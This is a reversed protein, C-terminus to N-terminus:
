PTNVSRLIDFIIVFTVFGIYVVDLKDYRTFVRRYGKLRGLLREVEGDRTCSLTTSGLSWEVGLLRFM